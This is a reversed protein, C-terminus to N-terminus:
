WGVTYEVSVQQKKRACKKSLKKGENQTELNEM